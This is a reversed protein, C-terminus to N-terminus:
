ALDSIEPADNGHTCSWDLTTRNEKASSSISLDIFGNEKPDKDICDECIFVLGVESSEIEIDGYNVLLSGMNDVVTNEKGAGRHSIRIQPFMSINNGNCVPCHLFSKKILTTIDTM